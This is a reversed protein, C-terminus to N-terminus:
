ESSEMGALFKDAVEKPFSRPKGESNILMQLTEGEAVERGECSLRYGMRLKFRKLEIVYVYITVEDDYRAAGRYRCTAELIPLFLGAEELEMYRIGRARCFESRAAEFWEFYRGYYARQMQDTEAYRVRLTMFVGNPPLESSTDSM